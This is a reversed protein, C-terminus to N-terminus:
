TWITAVDGGLDLLEIVRDISITHVVQDWQELVSARLEDRGPAVPIGAM